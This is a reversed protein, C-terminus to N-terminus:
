NVRVVTNTPDIDRYCEFTEIVKGTVKHFTIIKGEIYPYRKVEQWFNPSILRYVVFDSSEWGFHFISEQDVYCSQFEGHQIYRDLYIRWTQEGSGGFDIIDEEDGVTINSQSQNLSEVKNKEKSSSGNTTTDIINRDKQCSVVLLIMTLAVLIKKM